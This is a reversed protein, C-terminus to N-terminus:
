KQVGPPASRSPPVTTCIDLSVTGTELYSACADGFLSIDHADVIDYGDQRQADHQVITSGITLNVSSVTALDREVQITCGGARRAVDVMASQLTQTDRAVYHRETGGAAAMNDLVYGFNDEVGAIGIVYVDLGLAHLATVANVSGVDDLCQFAENQTACSNDGTSCVCTAPDLNDNCNPAGDTALLVARTRTTPHDLHWQQLSGLAAATPTAGSPESSFADLLTKM